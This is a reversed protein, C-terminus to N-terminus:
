FQFADDQAATRERTMRLRWRRRLIEPSPTQQDPPIGTGSIRRDSRERLIVRIKSRERLIVRKEMTM